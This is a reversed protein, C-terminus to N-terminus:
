DVRVSPRHIEYLVRELDGTEFFDLASGPSCNVIRLGLTDCDITRYCDLLGTIEKTKPDVNRGSRGPWHQLGPPYEGLVDSHRPASTRAVPDYDGPYRLDYGLLVLYRCGYLYALNLVEYGSGHGYHIVSPDTSFSTVNRKGGSWRGPIHNVGYHKATDLDWTWCETYGGLVLDRLRPDHPYYERWFEPNCAYFVDLFLDAKFVTNVGFTRIRTGPTDRYEKVTQIQETTLSPGTGLVVGIYGSFTAPVALVKELVGNM